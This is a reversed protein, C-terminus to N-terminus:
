LRSALVLVAALAHERTTAAGSATSRELRRTWPMGPGTDLCRMGARNEATFTQVAVTGGPAYRCANDLLTLLVQRMRRPDALVVARGFEREITIGATM